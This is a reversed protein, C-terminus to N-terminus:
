RKSARMWQKIVGVFQLAPPTLERDRLRLTGIRCALRPGGLPRSVLDPDAPSPRENGPVVALGVGNRVLGQLTPLRNATMSYHLSIGAGAAAEDVIRRTRSGVPFSVMAIGALAAVNLTRRGALRHHRPMVVHFREVGLSETAFSDLTDDLYGIGFDALGGRVEDVVTGHLGERFHIQVAPFQGSYKAILPSLTANALSFVSAVVIQGSPQAAQHRIHAINIKLDNLLREALAAFERGHDTVTVQRTHRAFLAVGLESEVQQIVRTMAPQSMKLSTAAAIFSRYSAVALVARLQRSSLNPFADSAM